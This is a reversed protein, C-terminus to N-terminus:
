IGIYPVPKGIIEVDIVEEVSWLESEIYEICLMLEKLTESDLVVTFTIQRPTSLVRDKDENLSM